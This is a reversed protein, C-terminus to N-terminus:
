PKVKEAPEFAVNFGTPLSTRIAEIIPEMADLLRVLEFVTLQVRVVPALRLSASGMGKLYKAVGVIPLTYFDILAETGSHAMTEFNAWESHEKDAEMKEPVVLARTPNPPWSSAFAKVTTHFERSNRWFHGLVNEPPYRLELRTRLRDRKDRNRKGFFLRLDGPTHEIWAFDADYSNTPAALKSMDITITRNPGVGIPDEVVPALTGATPRKDM